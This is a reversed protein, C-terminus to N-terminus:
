EGPVLPFDVRDRVTRPTITGDKKSMVLVEKSKNSFM